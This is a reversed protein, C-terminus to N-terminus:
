GGPCWMTEHTGFENELCIKPNLKIYWTIAWWWLGLQVVYIWIIYRIYFLQGSTIRYREMCHRQVHFSHKIVERHPLPTTTRLGRMCTYLVCVSHIDRRTHFYRHTCTWIQEASHPPRMDADVHAHEKVTQHTHPLFSICCPSPVWVLDQQEEPRWSTNLAPIYQRFLFAHSWVSEQQGTAGTKWSLKWACLYLSPLCRSMTATIHFCFLQLVFEHQLYLVWLM